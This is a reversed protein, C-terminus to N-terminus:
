WFAGRVEPRHRGLDGFPRCAHTQNRAAFM